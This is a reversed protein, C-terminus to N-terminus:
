DSVVEETKDVIVVVSFPITVSYVVHHGNDLVDVISALSLELLTVSELTAVGLEAEEEWTVELEAEENWAVGLEAEEDWAVGLEAEEEWTVGLEAEEDWTVGLEAEEFSTTVFTESVTGVHVPLSPDHEVKVLAMVSFVVGVEKVVVHSPLDHSAVESYVLAKTSVGVVLLRSMDETVGVVSADAVVNSVYEAVM